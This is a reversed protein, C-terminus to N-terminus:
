SIFHTFHEGQEQYKLKIRCVCEMRDGDDDDDDGGGCWRKRKTQRQMLPTSYHAYAVTEDLLLLM